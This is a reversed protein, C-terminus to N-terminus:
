FHVQLLFACCPSSHKSKSPGTRGTASSAYCVVTSATKPRCPKMCKGPPVAKCMKKYYVDELEASEIKLKNIEKILNYYDKDTSHAPLSRKKLERIQWNIGRQKDHLEHFIPFFATAEAPTLCAERVIFSELHKVFDQPSFQGKPPQAMFQIHGLVWFMVFLPLIKRKM